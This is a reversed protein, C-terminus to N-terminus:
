LGKSLFGAYEFAWKGNHLSRAIKKRELQLDTLGKDRLSNALCRKCCFFKVM